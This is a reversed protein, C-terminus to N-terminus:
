IINNNYNFNLLECTKYNFFYLQTDRTHSKKLKELDDKNLCKPMDMSMCPYKFCKILELRKRYYKLTKKFKKKTLPEYVEKNYKEKKNFINYKSFFIINEDKKYSYSYLNLYLCSQQLEMFTITIPDYVYYNAINNMNHDYTYIKKTFHNYFLYYYIKDGYDKNSSIIDIKKEIIGIYLDKDNDIDYIDVNNFFNSFKNNYRLKHIPLRQNNFIFRMCFLNDRKSICYLSLKNLEMQYNEVIENNKIFTGFFYKNCTRYKIIDISQGYIGQKQHPKIEDDKYKKYFYKPHIFKKYINDDCKNEIYKYDKEVFIMKKCIDNYRDIIINKNHDIIDLENFIYDYIDRYIKSINDKKSEFGLEYMKILYEIITEKNMEYQTIMKKNEYIEIINKFNFNKSTKIDYLTRDIQSKYYENLIINNNLYLKINSNFDDDNNDNYIIINKDNNMINILHNTIYLLKNIIDDNLPTRNLLINKIYIIKQYNSLIIRKLYYINNNNLLDNINDIKVDLDIFINLQKNIIDIFKLINDKNFIFDTNINNVEKLIINLNDQNINKILNDITDNIIYNKIRNMHNYKILNINQILYNKIYNIIFQNSVYFNNETDLLFLKSKISNFYNLYDNYQNLIDFDYNNIKLLIDDYIDKDFLDYITYTNNNFIYNYLFKINHNIAKILDNYGLPYISKDITFYILNKFIEDIDKIDYFFIHYDDFNMYYKLWQLKSRIYKINNQLEIYNNM